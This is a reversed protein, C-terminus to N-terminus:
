SALTEALAGSIDSPFPPGWPVLAAFVPTTSAVASADAFLRRLVGQDRWGMLRPYRVLALAANKGRLREFRLASGDRTPLPILMARLPTSEQAAHTPALIQREDASTRTAVDSLREVLEATGSRLRLERSGRRVTPRTGAEDIVLVDDTVVSAGEACFLTAMTTKGQGSHGVFGIAEGAVDVASGHWVSTGRLFLLLSLLTGTTMIADMGDQVDRHLRMEVHTVDPSIVFDGISHVRYHFRGDELRVLTYWPEHTEFDLLVQGVPQPQWLDFSEASHVVVDPQGATPTGSDHLDFDTAIRLGYLQTVNM